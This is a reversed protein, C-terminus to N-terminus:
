RGISFYANEFFILCMIQHSDCRYARGRLILVPFGEGPHQRSTRPVGFWFIILAKNWDNVKRVSCNYNLRDIRDTPSPNTILVNDISELYRGEGTSVDERKLISNWFALDVEISIISEPPLM